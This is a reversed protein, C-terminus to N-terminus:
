KKHRVLKRETVCKMEGEDPM